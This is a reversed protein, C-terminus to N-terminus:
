QKANVKRKGIAERKRRRERTRRRRRWRVLIEGGGGQVQVTEAGVEGGFPGEM